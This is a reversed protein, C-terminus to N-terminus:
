QLRLLASRTFRPSLPQTSDSSILRLLEVVSRVVHVFRVTEFDPVECLFWEM